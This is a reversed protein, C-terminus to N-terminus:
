LHENKTALMAFINPERWVTLKQRQIIRSLRCCQVLSGEPHEFFKWGEQLGGPTCPSPFSGM